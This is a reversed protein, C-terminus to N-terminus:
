SSHSGESVDLTGRAAGRDCSYLFVISSVNRIPSPLAYRWKEGAKLTGVHFVKRIVDGDLLLVELEVRANTHTQEKDPNELVIESVRRGLFMSDSVGVGYGVSVTNLGHNALESCGTCFFLLGAGLVVLSRQHM